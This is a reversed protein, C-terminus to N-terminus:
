MHCLNLTIIIVIIIIIIIIKCFLSLIFITSDVALLLLPLFLSPETYHAAKPARPGSNSERHCNCGEKLM